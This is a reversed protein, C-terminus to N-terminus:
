DEFRVCGYIEQPENPSKNEAAIKQEARIQRLSDCLVNAIRKQGAYIQPLYYLYGGYNKNFGAPKDNLTHMYRTRM